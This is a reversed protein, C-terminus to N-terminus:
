GKYPKIKEIIKGNETLLFVVFGAAAADKILEERLVAQAEYKHGPERILSLLGQQAAEKDAFAPIFSIDDQEDHQGLFQENGGPDQVVVWVWQDEDNMKQM